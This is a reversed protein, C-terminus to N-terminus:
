SSLPRCVFSLPEIVLASPSRDLQGDPPGRRRHSHPALDSGKVHSRMLSRLPRSTADGVQKWLLKGLGFRRLRLLGVLMILLLIVDTTFMSTVGLTVNNIKSVACVSQEPVWASRIQLYHSDVSVSIQPHISCECTHYSYLLGGTHTEFLITPSPTSQGHILFAVNATWACM